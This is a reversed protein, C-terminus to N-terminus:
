PQQSSEELHSRSRRTLAPRERTSQRDARPKEFPGGDPQELFGSRILYSFYTGLLEDDAAPCTIATGALGELTNRCDFEPIKARSYIEPICAQREPVRETFFPLLPALASDSTARVFDSLARQWEEYPALRLGYGFSRMWELLNRWYLPRPNTLHFTKGLSGDSRSLRVIARSVYDVPVMDLPIDLEPAVGLQICGKILRCLLDDTNWIGTRSHGSILGPRYVCVPLGHARAGAVMDEAARKSQAYGFGLYLSDSRGPQQHEYVVRETLNDASYFIGLTSIFHVPKMRVCSSLRLVEQTGFVNAAWLASYPFLYNVLAGSHYVADVEGALAQFERPSLGLMPRGLDAAVAVIRPVFADDWLSYAELSERIRSQGAAANPCRVLCYIKAETQQLFEHLLFSGLYGTAGTLLVSAPEMLHTPPVGGSFISPDLAEEGPSDRRAGGGADADEDAVEGHFGNHRALYSALAKISKHEYLITPALSRNIWNELAGAMEVGHLSDLGYNILPEREDIADPSVGIIAALHSILWAQIEEAARARPEHAERADPPTGDPLDPPSRRTDNM